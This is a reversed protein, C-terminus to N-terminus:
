LSIPHHDSDAKPHQQKHKILFNHFIFRVAFLSTERYLMQKNLKEVFKELLIDKSSLNSVM